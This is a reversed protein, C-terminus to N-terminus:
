PDRDKDLMEDMSQRQLIAADAAEIQRMGARL